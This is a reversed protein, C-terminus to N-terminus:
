RALWEAVRKQSDARRRDTGVHGAEPLAADPAGGIAHLSCQATSGHAASLGRDRWRAAAARATSWRRLPRRVSTTGPAM